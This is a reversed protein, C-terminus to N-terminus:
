RRAAEPPRYHLKRAKGEFIRELSGSILRLLRAQGEGARRGHSRVGKEMERQAEMPEFM